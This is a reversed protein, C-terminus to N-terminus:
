PSGEQCSPCIHKWEGDNFVRWGISKAENVAELFEGSVFLDEVDGCRSCEASFFGDKDREIPM